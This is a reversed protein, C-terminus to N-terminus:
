LEDDRPKSPEPTVKPEEISEDKLKEDAAQDEAADPVEEVGRSEEEPEDVVAGESDAEDVNDVKEGGLGVWKLINDVIGGETQPPIPHALSFNWSVKAVLTCSFLVLLFLHARGAM